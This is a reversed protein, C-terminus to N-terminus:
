VERALKSLREVLRHVYTVSETQAPALSSKMKEIKSARETAVKMYEDDMVTKLLEKDLSKNDYISHPLARNLRKVYQKRDMPEGQLDYFHLLYWYEFAQNSYIIIIGQKEARKIYTNFIDDTVDDKDCVCYVEDYSRQKLIAEAKEVLSVIGKGERMVKVAGLRWKKKLAELYQPETNKGETLILIAKHKERKRQSRLLKLTKAHKGNKKERNKPNM